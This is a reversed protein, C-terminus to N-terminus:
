YDYTLGGYYINRAIKGNKMKRKENKM